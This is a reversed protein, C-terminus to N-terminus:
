RSLASLQFVTSRSRFRRPMGRGDNSYAVPREAEPCRYPVCPRLGALLAVPKVLEAVDEVLQRLPQLRAHLCRQVLHHVGLSTRLGAVRHLPEGGVVTGLGRLGDRRQLLIGVHQEAEEVEGGFM